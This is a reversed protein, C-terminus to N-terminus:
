RSYLFYIEQAIKITKLSIRKSILSLLIKELLLNHINKDLSLEKKGIFNLINHVEM